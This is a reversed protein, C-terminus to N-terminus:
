KMNMMGAIIITSNSGNDMIPIPVLSYEITRSNEINSTDGSRAIDRDIRVNTNPGTIGVKTPYTNASFVCM